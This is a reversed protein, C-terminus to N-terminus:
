FCFRTRLKLLFKKFFKDVYRSIQGAQGDNSLGQVCSIKTVLLLHNIYSIIDNINKSIKSNRSLESKQQPFAPLLTAREVFKWSYEHEFYIPCIGHPPEPTQFRSESFKWNREM